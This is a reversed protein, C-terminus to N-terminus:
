GGTKAAALEDRSIEQGTPWWFARGGEGLHRLIYWRDDAFFVQGRTGYCGPSRGDHGSPLYGYWDLVFSRRGLDDRQSYPYVYLEGPKAEPGPAFFGRHKRAPVGSVSKGQGRAYGGSWRESEEVRTDYDDVGITVAAESM